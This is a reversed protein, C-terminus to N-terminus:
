RRCFRCYSTYIVAMAQIPILAFEGKWFENIELSSISSFYAYSLLIFTLIIMNKSRMSLIVRYNLSQKKLILDSIIM